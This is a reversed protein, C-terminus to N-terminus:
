VADLATVLTRGDQNFGVIFRDDKRLLDCLRVGSLRKALVGYKRNLLRLPVAVGFRQMYDVSFTNVENLLNVLVDADAM